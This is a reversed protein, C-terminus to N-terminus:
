GATVRGTVPSLRITKTGASNTLTIVQDPDTELRENGGSDCPRGSINFSVTVTNASLGSPFNKTRTSILGTSNYITVTYGSSTVAINCSYAATASGANVASQNLLRIDAVLGRVTANLYHADQWRIFTPIALALIISIVIMYNLLKSSAFGRQNMDCWDELFNNNDCEVYKSLIGVTYCFKQCPQRDAGNCRKMLALILKALIM